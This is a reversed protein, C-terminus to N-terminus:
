QNMMGGMQRMDMEKYGAPVKFLKKDLEKEEIHKLTTVTTIGMMDMETQVPFGEVEKMMVAMNLRRFLPNDGMARNMKESLKQLTEYEKVDKTVWYVGEGMMMKVNYKRSPYGAVTKTEDTPTVKMSGAMQEMMKQSEKDGSLEKLNRKIYSKVEPNIQYLMKKDFDIIMVGEDTESRLGEESIYNKITQTKNFQDKMEQPVNAPMGQPMGETKMTSEWYIGASAASLTGLTLVACLLLTIILKSLKM